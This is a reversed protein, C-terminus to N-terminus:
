IEKRWFQMLNKIVYMRLALHRKHKVSAISVMSVKSKRYCFAWINKYCNWLKKSIMFITKKYWWVVRMIWYDYIVQLWICSTSTIISLLNIKMKCRNRYVNEEWWGITCGRIITKYPICAGFMIQILLGDKCLSASTSSLKIFEFLSYSLKTLKKQRIAQIYGLHCTPVSGKM